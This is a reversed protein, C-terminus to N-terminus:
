TEVVVPVQIQTAVPTYIDTEPTRISVILAYNSNREYGKLNPRKNWWGYTPFVAISGRASLDVASGTWINSHISGLTPLPSNGKFLWSGTEKRHDNEYEEDRAAKNIRAQFDTLTERARKVAFRLGHSQYGYKTTWGRDGPNPEVFYSLTVRLSVDTEGLATLESTPWPLDHLKLERPKVDNGDKHFPQISGQAILVLSNDASSFLERINPVGYGYCRVLSDYDIEKDSGTFNKEMAPTWYASHVLLGRVSEPSLDPYKAWLATALRAALATAASTDGFSILPKTLAPNHATTLLLLSDDIYDPDAHDAHKAMNGAELVIDPKIPWKTNKWTMSTCSAPALDGAQALAEWGPYKTQDVLAKETYGGVTVANWAQAPDHVSDTHNSDPYTRRTEPDTNGASIFMIRRQGDTRGSTLEDIAASWSSPRGRDRADTTTVAMCYVRTNPKVEVRYASERTVAGYLEKEHPDADNIIKVSELTHTIRVPQNSALADTLDGYACIGAMWTGHGHRDDTEWQPKYTHLDGDTTVPNILPHGRNLGTDFICLCPSGNKAPVLRAAFDDVWKQQETATMGTFFDATTKALRLEAIAGLIEISRALDSGKGRVLVITRDVFTIIDRGVTLNFKAAHERLRVLHDITGSRRLWVEWSTDQDPGPFLDAQDTWLAELAAIRIDSISAVLDENKPRTEGAKNPKTDEDRYDSIRKLFFALKGDPVFVTAQVLNNPLKRVACLEIGSPAFDLSEFKLDFGPASEFVLYIGNGADIGLAKQEAVRQVTTQEVDQLQGLLRAAHQARDRQQLSLTQGRGPKPSKFSQSSAAKPDFLHPHLRPPVAAAM